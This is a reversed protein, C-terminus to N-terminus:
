FGARFVFFLYPGFVIDFSQRLNNKEQALKKIYNILLHLESLTIVKPGSSNVMYTIISAM